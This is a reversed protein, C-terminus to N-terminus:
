HPERKALTLWIINGEIQALRHQITSDLEDLGFDGVDIRM